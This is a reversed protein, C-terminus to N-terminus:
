QALKTKHSDPNFDTKDLIQKARRDIPDQMKLEVNLEGIKGQLQSEQM